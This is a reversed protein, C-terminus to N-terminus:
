CPSYFYHLFDKVLVMLEHSEWVGVTPFASSINVISSRSEGGSWELDLMMLWHRCIEVFIETCM